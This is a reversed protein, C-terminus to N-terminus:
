LNVVIRVTIVDLVCVVISFISFLFNLNHINVQILTQVALLVEESKKRAVSLMGGFVRFYKKIDGNDMQLTNFM